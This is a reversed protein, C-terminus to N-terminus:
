AKESGRAVGWKGFERRQRLTWFGQANVVFHALIAPWLSGSLLTAYGFMVGAVFTFLTYGWGKRTAPHLLGFLLAQGWVGVLPLLVGRFFLEEALSSVAALGFIMPLSLRVCILAREMLREAHRFSPLLKAFLWAGSLLAAVLLAAGLLQGFLGFKM